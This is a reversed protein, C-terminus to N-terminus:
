VTSPQHFKGTSVLTWTLHTMQVGRTREGPNLSPPSLPQGALQSADYLQVACFVVCARMKCRRMRQESVLIQMDCVFYFNWGYVLRATSSTYRSVLPALVCRWKTTPERELYQPAYCSVHRCRDQLIDGM